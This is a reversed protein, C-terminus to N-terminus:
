ITKFSTVGKTKFIQVANTKLQDNGAFGEDLCVVREPQTDAMARVLELSLEPELCILLAGGAVSYVSKGALGLAEIQTTLPFGSKLLIEYLIDEATRDKRIHEVHLDLQKELSAIEHPTEANWVKFNSESLKFVRFGRDQQMNDDLDLKAADEDNLNSIVRRIREKTLESITPSLKNEKCFKYANKQDKNKEDLIEPLQILIFKRKISDDNNLSLVAEGFSGSGAFFDLLIDGDGNCGVYKILRSLEYHDKPNNFVKGDMLRRLYKVTVQSQKYFYSGRVQTAMEGDEQEGEIDEADFDEDLEDAIPRIHSKRIPPETHDARFEVIGAAIKQQMTEPTAFVWGREPVACPQKTVPHYVDYRPGGGGPWSINDDRWPGFKDVHKYRSLKKSPHNEPLVRYWVQLDREIAENNDKHRKKLLLYQDWIEAAGPKEERWVSGMEKLKTLNKAYILIYEHGVSFLKADNKRGKEWILQAIFNEEGFVENCISKLNCVENDDISILIVGDDKLLNNSLYLRPYIMNMWKSHFRGDTDTNTGFKSGEADAQGTYQLYTQLSESFNDPYIFDNGTNYPPDIYIMKVKSLYSKQLLKLAELNDGEIIMNETTNFNVSEEPCPRLTGMSPSQITKFCEAKGPWSMGYREKGVDVMEGLVLKLREFDIKGGETKIEPFLHLLELRKEESINHSALDLKEPQDTM